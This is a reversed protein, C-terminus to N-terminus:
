GVRVVLFSFGAAAPDRTATDANFYRLVIQGATACLPETRFHFQIADNSNVGIFFCFDGVRLGPISITQTGSSSAATSAINVGLVTVVQVAAGKWGSGDYFEPISLDENYRLDAEVPSAPRQATTSRTLLLTADSLLKWVATVGAVSADAQISANGGPFPHATDPAAGAASYGRLIFFGSSVGYVTTVPTQLHLSSSAPTTSSPLEYVRASDADGPLQPITIKLQGRMPVQASLGIRGIGGTGGNLVVNSLPSVLSEFPEAAHRWTYAIWWKDGNSGPTWVWSSYRQILASFTASGIYQSGDYAVGKWLESVNNSSLNVADPTWVSGDATDLAKTSTLFNEFVSYNKGSSQRKTVTTYHTGDRGTIGGLGSSTTRQVGGTLDFHDLFAPTSGSVSLRIVHKDSGSASGAWGLLLLNTGDTGFGLGQASFGSIVPWGSLTNVTTTSVGAFTGHDFARLVLNGTTSTYLVWIYNGLRCVGYLASSGQMNSAPFLAQSRLLTVPRANSVEYLTVNGTAGYGVFLLTDTTTNNGNTDFDLGVLQTEDGMPSPLPDSDYEFGITPATGPDALKGLLTLAAGKDMVNTSGQMIMNGLVTLAGSVLNGRFTPSKTPDTPIDVLETNDPAFLKVGSPGIEVRQGEDATEILNALLLVSALRDATLTNVLVQDATVSGVALDDTTAQRPSGSAQAGAAASGDADKAILKVFYTADSTLVSGDVPLRHVVLLTGDTQGALTTPGPTFGSSTSVHVEYTVADANAIATWGIALSGIGGAVTPTPSAAPPAGDTSVPPLTGPTIMTGDISPEVQLVDGVILEGGQDVTLEVLELEGLTADRLGVPIRDYLGHPVRALLAEEQDELLVHAFREVSTPQIDLRDGATHSSALPAALTLVGTIEDVATYTVTEAGLLFTGGDATFDTPDVATVTTASAAVDAALESGALVQEVNVVTGASM